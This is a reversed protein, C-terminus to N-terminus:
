LKVVRTKRRKQKSDRWVEIRLQLPPALEVRPRPNPNPSPGPLIPMLVEESAPLFPFEEQKHHRPCDRFADALAEKLGPAEDQQDGLLQEAYAIADDPSLEGKQM